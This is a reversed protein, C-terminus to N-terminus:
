SLHFSHSGERAALGLRQRMVELSSYDPLKLYNVCTMVSPLFNDSSAEGEVDKRVVTLPPSLSKFGGVPLRPSGTVFQLFLRQETANYNSLVEFLFRIAKSDLTYGHDPRFCESLTKVDWGMQQGSGCFVADLEEPYFMHLQQLPFVTEFGERLAEMQRSAGEVLLWHCVLKIYQELNEETVLIDKGGKRLELDPYGPLTFDLCLDEFSMEFDDCDSISNKGSARRRLFSQMKALTQHVQPAVYVLDPLHLSGEQGLLWRYFALSFPLDLLRSDMVAKAMFKGLFRFKSKIKTLHNHTYKSSRSLPAPFLGQPANVYTVGDPGETREGAWLELDGRQLERSVLAYFELTPGLGTGVENEYQVELLARSSALDQIVLEAQKLIDERSITRKRRDLKPTVRETSDSSSLDPTADLLRQLARDRDFSTAYFLLQRTEFPLLFPCAVAIQQLWLPLNGTMIVLPDQLQRSAKASIKSNIFCNIPLLESYSPINYLTGWYRSLSHLIRLLNLVQLSADQITVSEPLKRTLFPTLPSQFTPVVGEIWLQDSKRQSKNTSGKHKRSTPVSAPGANPPAPRYQITHTQVWVGSHGLPMESDTDTESQEQSNQNTFQRVAQYVTMNYPLVHDGILFQLQHRATGQSIVVAALTDDIDDDESNDDDSEGSDHGRIRGYGRVVLYREIAQVLALPDIKVSGGKWQKLNTCDPHRQLNCKLQHTNFFKLASTGGRAGGAGAPLDHVKVPFQELQSVCNNLKSVLLSLSNTNIGDVPDNPDLPCDAFVHLFTRLRDERSGDNEHTLFELLAEVLGSHNVEFPSIDSEKLIDCLEKLAPLSEDKLNAYHMKSILQTLKYLVDAAPLQAMVEDSFYVEIFRSATERIWCRVKEKNGATLNSNSPSKSLGSDKPFHREGHASSNNPSRGWKAPNLSALFSTTKAGPGGAFRSRSTGTPTSRGSNGLSTAKSIIDQMMSSPLAEEHKNKSRNSSNSGRKSKRKRSLVDSLKLQSPSQSLNDEGSMTHEDNPIMNGNIGSSTSSFSLSGSSSTSPLPLTPLPPPTEPVTEASVLQKIQHTVGERMFRITFIDSLKQMLINAMQLAGVVIRLDHSALMGAIHSSVVQNKLVEKLLEPSSFYVMRLLAKLCKYRVAPGASSSYVEYLTSFLSRVFSSALEREENSNKVSGGSSTVHVSNGNNSESVIVFYNSSMVAAGDHASGIVATPNVRRRIPWSTVYDESMQTMAHLNITYTSYRSNLLIEPEGNQHAAEIMRSDWSGYPHWHGQEDRWQWQVTDPVANSQRELLSDVAFIGDSPLKPMLEGILCTMEYLEQPSRSVLEVEFNGTKEATGTLLYCLTDAINQKLLTLALDPCAACMITLMRLVSIFTSTSIVPPSEVLLQQLNTLLEPSAIELLKPPDNQFSDVLRCFALCISEVCKKDSQRTLRSALIPLSDSVYNLELVHLNQCCNATVALAARQAAISFFDLYKLCAAVGRAQLISKSHRRSLTELATLSQEAVDMCQIEQLKELFVPVADVVVASSRPLAEMMYTLARCAHNMMVFNHDMTLLTILAPVVDKVPFGTLTDENGMILMQCMEIVAQLQQSEDGSAQLGQLLQQAKSSSSVGMSRNLLHQVRPGLAGFLHPPLGRSELLAQLRGVENNDDSESTLEYSERVTTAGSASAASGLQSASIPASAPEESTSPGQPVGSSPGQGASMMAWSSGAGVKGARSSRRSSTSACSGTNHKSRASRRLTVRFQPGVTIEPEKKRNDTKDETQSSEVSVNWTSASKHRRPIFPKRGQAIAIEERSPPFLPILAGSSDLRVQSRLPYIRGEKDSEVATCNAEATTSSEKKESNSRKDTRSSNRKVRNRSVKARKKREGSDKSHARKLQNRRTHKNVKESEQLTNKDNVETQVDSSETTKRRASKLLFINNNKNIKVGRCSTSTSCNDSYDSIKWCIKRSRSKSALKTDRNRNLNDESETEVGGREGKGEIKRKKSRPLSFNENVTASLTRRRNSERSNDLNPKNLYDDKQRSAIRSSSHRELSDGGSRRNDKDAM